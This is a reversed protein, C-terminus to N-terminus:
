LMPAMLDELLADPPVHDRLDRRDELAVLLPPDELLHLGACTPRPMDELHAALFEPLVHVLVEAHDVRNEVSPVPDEPLRAQRVETDVSRHRREERDAPAHRGLERPEGSPNGPNPVEPRRHASSRTRWIPWRSRGSSVPRWTGCRPGRPM